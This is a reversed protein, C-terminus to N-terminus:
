WSRWDARADFHRASSHEPMSYLAKGIEVHYDRHVKVGTYIPVDYPEPGAAAAPRSSPSCWRRAPPPPATSGCGPGHRPVVGRGPRPMPWIPSTEGAFFNSRVYQVMREVRPKDQPPRVRAPDTGFGRAPRLGALRRTFRPNVADAHAVVPKMNDPVLVKFVGGFFRWAAECGDIVAALTQSYTLWVFM